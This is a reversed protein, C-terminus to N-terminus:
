EGDAGDDPSEADRQRANAVNVVMWALIGVIAVVAIFLHVWPFGPHDTNLLNCDAAQWHYPIM